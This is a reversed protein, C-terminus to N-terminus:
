SFIASLRFSFELMNGEPLKPPPNPPQPPLTELNNDSDFFIIKFHDYDTIKKNFNEGNQENNEMEYNVM